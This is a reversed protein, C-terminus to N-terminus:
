ASDLVNTLLNRQARRLHERVTSPDLDLTAAIEATTATKPVEFYGMEFATELVDRQRETVADLPDSPGRYETLTRLLPETGTSGYERVRESINDHSGIMTVDIGDGAPDIESQSVGTEHHPTFGDDFAPVALKCLYTVGHERDLEEWWDVNDLGSLETDPIPEMVEVVLLCGPRRCQLETVQELGAAQVSSVFAEIGFAALEEGSLHITAERM